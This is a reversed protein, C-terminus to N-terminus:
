RTMLRRMEELTALENAIFRKIIEQSVESAANFSVGFGYPAHSCKVAAPLRVIQDDLEFQVVIETGEEPPDEGDIFMGGESIDRAISRYPESDLEYVVDIEVPIRPHRRREHSRAM